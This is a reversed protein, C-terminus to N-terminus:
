GSRGLHSLSLRVVARQLPLQRPLHALLLRPHRAVLLPHVAVVPVLTPAPVAEVTATTVALDPPLNQGAPPVLPHGEQLHADQPDLYM